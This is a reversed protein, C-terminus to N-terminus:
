GICFNLVSDRQEISEPTNIEGGRVRSIVLNKAWDDRNRTVGIFRNHYDRRGREHTFSRNASNNLFVTTFLLLTKLIGRPKIVSALSTPTGLGRPFFLHAEKSRYKIISILRHVGGM